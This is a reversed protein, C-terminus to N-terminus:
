ATGGLNGFLEKMVVRLAQHSREIEEENIFAPPTLRIVSGGNLSHNVIIGRELMGLLTEAAFVENHFEIGWLCGEGRVDLIIEPFEVFLDRLRRGLATGVVNIRAILDEEEIVKLTALAARMALPNGAYTSTHLFPDRDFPAYVDPTAIMASVPIVGGSLVKGSLVIDPRCEAEREHAWMRGTRGLGTQIEDMVLIAEFQSCLMSIEGLYGEPPFRVGSEGQIPEVFVATPDTSEGLKARLSNSDGYPITVVGELLPVFPLQFVPNATLTLAGVTKGHFSGATTIIRRVGHARVLKIAAEVAEAGSNAFHVKSLKKNSFTNCLEHAVVPALWDGLVRSTMGGIDLQDHVAAVVSPHRAGLLTVGYGALNLLERGCDTTVTNGLSAVEFEDGFMSNIAARKSSLHRSNWLRINSGLDRAIMNM